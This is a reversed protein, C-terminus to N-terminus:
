EREFVLIDRPKDDGPLRISMTLTKLDPSVEFLVTQNKNGIELAHPHVRHGSFTSVPAGDRGANSNIKGDFRVKQAFGLGPSSFSYGGGEYSLIELDLTPDVEASVSDWTGLFGSTGATRQYIYHIKKTSGDPLYTSYADDLTKGDASLTWVGMVIRHGDKKRVVTWNNPGEIAISFTTGQLAPQDTGDAVITDVAGPGFTIAYTNKGAVEVKMEDTLRSKSPIVKWKGVFPDNAAWLGGM